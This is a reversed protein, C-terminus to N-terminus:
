DDSGGMCARAAIWASEWRCGACYNAFGTCDHHMQDPYPAEAIARVIDLAVWARLSDKIPDDCWVMKGPRPDNVAAEIKGPDLRSDV